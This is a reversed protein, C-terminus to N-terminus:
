SQTLYIQKIILNLAVLHNISLQMAQFLFRYVFSQQKILNKDYITIISPFM